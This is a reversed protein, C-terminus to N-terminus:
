HPNVVTAIQSSSDANEVWSKMVSSFEWHVIIHIQQAFQDNVDFCICIFTLDMWYLRVDNLTVISDFSCLGLVLFYLHIFDFRGVYLPLFSDARTHTQCYIRVRVYVVYCTIVCCCCCCCNWCNWCFGFYFLLSCFSPIFPLLYSSLHSYCCCYCCCFFIVM